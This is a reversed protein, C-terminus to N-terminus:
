RDYSESLETLTKKFAEAAPPIWRDRRQILVIQRMIEPELLPRVQLDGGSLGDVGLSPLVTVGLGAQALAIASSMYSVELGINLELNSLVGSDDILDRVSTGARM